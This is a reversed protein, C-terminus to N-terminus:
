RTVDHGYLWDFRRHLMTPAVAGIGGLVVRRGFRFVPSSLHYIWGTRESAAQIRAARAVREADYRALASPIDPEAGVARGLAFADEIAAGAGQALFPLMPHAADGLLTLKEKTFGPLADRTYLGWKHATQVRALVERVPGAFHSFRDRLLDPDGVERWTEEADGGTTEVAVINLLGLDRLPYLVVHGGPALHVHTEPQTGARAPVLARWAVMGSFVPAAGRFHASRAASRMGDAAVVLDAEQEAGPRERIMGRKPDIEGVESGLRLEVGGAEARDRLCAILDARHIQLFPAGHRAEIHDGLPLRALRAGSLGDHLVLGSPRSAIGEIPVNLSTLVRSSNPGLQLGAGVETLAEAREHVVVDAGADRLAIAATLGGIGAGIIAVKM